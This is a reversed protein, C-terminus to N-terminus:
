EGWAAFAEAFAREGPEGKEIAMIARRGNAYVVPVNFWAREKLLQINRQVDAQASEGKLRRASVSKPNRRVARAM